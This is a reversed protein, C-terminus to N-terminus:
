QCASVAPQKLCSTIANNLGGSTLALRGLKDERLAALGALWEDDGTEDEFAFNITSPQKRIPSTTPATRPYDSCM